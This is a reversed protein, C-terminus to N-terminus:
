RLDGTPATRKSETGARKWTSRRRAFWSFSPRHGLLTFSTFISIILRRMGVYGLGVAVAILIDSLASCPDAARGGTKGLYARTAPRSLRALPLTDRRRLRDFPWDTAPLCPPCCAMSPLLLLYRALLGYIRSRAYSSYDRKPDLPRCRPPNFRSGGPPPATFRRHNPQIV